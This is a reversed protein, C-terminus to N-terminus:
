SSTHRSSTDDQAFAKAIEDRFAFDFSGRNARQQPRAQEMVQNEKVVLWLRDPAEDM